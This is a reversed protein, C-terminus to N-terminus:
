FVSLHKYKSENLIHEHDITNLLPNKARYPSEKLTESAHRVKETHVRIGSIKRSRRVQLSENIKELSEAESQRRAERKM